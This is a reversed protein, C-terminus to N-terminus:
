KSFDNSSQVLNAVKISINTVAPQTSPQISRLHPCLASCAPHTLTWSWWQCLDHWWTFLLNSHWRTGQYHRVHEQACHASRTSGDPVVFQKPDGMHFVPVLIPHLHLSHSYSARSRRRTRTKTRTRSRNHCQCWFNPGNYSTSLFVVKFLWADTGLTSNLNM